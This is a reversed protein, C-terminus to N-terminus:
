KEHKSFFVTIAVFFYLICVIFSIFFQKFKSTSVKQVNKLISRADSLKLPKQYSEMHAPPHGRKDMLMRTRYALDGMLGDLPYIISYINWDFLELTTPITHAIQFITPYTRALTPHVDFPDESEGDAMAACFWSAMPVQWYSTLDAVTACPMSCPPGIFADVTEEMLEVAHGGAAISRCATDAVVFDVTHSSNNGGLLGSASIRERALVAAGFSRTGLFPYSDYDTSNWPILLGLKFDYCTTFQVQFLSLALIFAWTSTRTTSGLRYFWRWLILPPQYFLHM